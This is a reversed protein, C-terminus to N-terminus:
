GFGKQLQGRTDKALNFLNSLGGFIQRSTNYASKANEIVQPINRKELAEKIEPNQIAKNYFNSFKSTADSFLKGFNSVKPFLAGFVM